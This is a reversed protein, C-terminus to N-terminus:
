AKVCFLPNAEPDNYGGPHRFSSECGSSMFTCCRFEPGEAHQFTDGRQLAGDTCKSNKCCCVQGDAVAVQAADRAADRARRAAEQVEERKVDTGTRVLEAEDYELHALVVSTDDGPGDTVALGNTNKFRDADGVGEPLEFLDDLARQKLVKEGDRKTFVGYQAELAMAKFEHGVNMMKQLVENITSTEHALKMYRLAEGNSFGQVFKLLHNRTGFIGDSGMVIWKARTSLLDYTHVEAVNTEGAHRENKDGFSRTIMVGSNVVRLAGDRGRTCAPQHPKLRQKARIRQLEKENDCDHDETVGLKNFDKDAWLVRSDGAHFTTMTKQKQNVVVGAVTTGGDESAALRDVSAAAESLVKWFAM